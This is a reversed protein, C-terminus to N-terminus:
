DGEVARLFLKASEYFKNLVRKPQIHINSTVYNHLTLFDTIFKLFVKDKLDNILLL